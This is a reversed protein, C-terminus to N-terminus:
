LQFDLSFSNGMPSLIPYNERSTSAFLSIAFGAAVLWGLGTAVLPPLVRNVTQFADLFSGVASLQCEPLVILNTPVLDALAVQHGEGAGNVVFMDALVLFTSLRALKVFFGVTVGWIFLLALALEVHV